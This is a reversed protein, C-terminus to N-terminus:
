PKVVMFFITIVVILGAVKGGNALQNVTARFESGLEDDQALDREALSLAQRYRPAFFGHTLGFLAIIALFGISVWSEGLSIDADAIAYLGTLVIVVMGPTVFLREVKIMARIVAPVSAPNTSEAVQAFIGYAFTPGFAVVVALVHLFVGIGYGTIAATTM